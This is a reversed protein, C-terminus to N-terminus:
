SSTAEPRVSTPSGRTPAPPNASFAALKDDSYRSVNGDDAVVTGSDIAGVTIINQNFAPNETRRPRRVGPRRQQRRRRDRFHRGAIRPRGVEVPHQWDLHRLGGHRVVPEHRQHSDTAARHDRVWDIAAKVADHRRRRRVHRGQHQRHSGALRPTSSRHWRPATGTPTTTRSRRNGSELSFDPGHIVFNKLDGVPAVGTDILAIDVGQGTFGAATYTAAGMAQAANAATHPPEPPVRRAHRVAPEGSPRLRHDHGPGGTFAQLTALDPFTSGLGGPPRAFSEAAPWRSM